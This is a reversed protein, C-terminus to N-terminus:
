PQATPSHEPRVNLRGALYHHRAAAARLVRESEVLAAESRHRETIDRVVGLIRDHEYSVLRTEYQREEGGARLSYEVVVPEDSESVRRFADTFRSVVDPPM